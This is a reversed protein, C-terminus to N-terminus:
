KGPATQMIQMHEMMNGMMMQMMDMRNEIMQPDEVGGRPGGGMVGGSTMGGGMMGMMGGGTGAMLRMAEQMSKMHEALLKEREKADTTQRMKDMQAHMSKMQEAMKQQLKPDIQTGATPKTAPQDQSQAISALPQGALAAVLTAAIAIKRRM